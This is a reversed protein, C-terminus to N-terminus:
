AKSAEIEVGQAIAAITVQRAAEGRATFSRRMFPNHKYEVIAPYFVKEGSKMTRYLGPDGSIKVEIEIQGRKRKKVARVKVNKRTLGSAFPVQRKVESAMVKMGKRMSQRLVKKQIRGPLMKLRRDIEPIGTVILVNGKSGGGITYRGGHVNAM